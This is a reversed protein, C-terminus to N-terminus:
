NLIQDIKNDRSLSKDLSLVASVSSINSKTEDPTGYAAERKIRRLIRSGLGFYPFLIRFESIGLEKM